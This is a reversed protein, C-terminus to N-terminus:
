NELTYSEAIAAAKIDEKCFPFSVWGKMSYLESQDAYHPSSPDISQSHTLIGEAIPCDSEDWTVTQIYSNGGSGFPM